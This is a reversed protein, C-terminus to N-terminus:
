QEDESEDTDETLDICIPSDRGVNDKELINYSSDMRVNNKEKKFEENKKLINYPSNGKVNDKEKQFEEAKEM